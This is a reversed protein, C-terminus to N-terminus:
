AAEPGLRLAKRIREILDPSILPQQWEFYSDEAAPRVVQLHSKRNSSVRKAFTHEGGPFDTDSM